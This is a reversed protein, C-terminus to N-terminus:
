ASRVASKKRDQRRRRLWGKEGVHGVARGLGFWGFRPPKATGNLIMLGARQFEKLSCTGARGREIMADAIRKRIVHSDRDPPITKCVYDLAATMMAITNQDFETLM